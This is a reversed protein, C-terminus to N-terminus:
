RYRHALGADGRCGGLVTSRSDDKSGVGLSVLDDRRFAGKAGIPSEGLEAERERADEVRPRRSAIRAPSEIGEVADILRLCAIQIAEPGGAIATVAGHRCPSQVIAEVAPDREGQLLREVGGV